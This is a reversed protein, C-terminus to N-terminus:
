RCRERRSGITTATRNNGAGALEVVRGHHKVFPPDTADARLTRIAALTSAAAKEVLGVIDVALIAALRREVRAAEV